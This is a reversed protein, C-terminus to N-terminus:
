AVMTRTASFAAIGGAFTTGLAPSGGAQCYRIDVTESSVFPHQIADEKLEWSLEPEGSGTSM